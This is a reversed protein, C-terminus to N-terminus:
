IRGLKELIRKVEAFSVWQNRPDDDKRFRLPQTAGKPLNVEVCELDTNALLTRMKRESMEGIHERFEKNTM